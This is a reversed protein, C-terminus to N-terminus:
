TDPNAEFVWLNQMSQQLNICLICDAEFVTIILIRNTKNRHKEDFYGYQAMAFTYYRYSTFNLM